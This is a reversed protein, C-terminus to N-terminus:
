QRFKNLFKRLFAFFSSPWYGAMKVERKALLAYLNQDCFIYSTNSQSSFPFTESFQNSLCMQLIYM